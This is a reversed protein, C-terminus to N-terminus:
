DKRIHELLATARGMWEDYWANRAEFYRKRYKLFQKRSIGFPRKIPIPLELLDDYEYIGMKEAAKEMHLRHMDMGKTTQQSQYNYGCCKRCAPDKEWGRFYLYRVRSGCLPCLFYVRSGVTSERDYNNRMREVHVYSWDNLRVGERHEKFDYSDYRFPAREVTGM